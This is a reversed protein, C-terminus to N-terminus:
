TREGVLSLEYQEYVVGSAGFEAKFRYLGDNLQRGNDENSTGFDFWRKESHAAIHLCHDFVLDLASSQYGVESSAIYQTHITRATLFLVVGAVIEDVKRAVVVSINERFREALWQIEQLRHVPSANHKRLLNDELVPWLGALENSGETITLGARASRALARRRRESVPGRNTLEITASLDCRWRRAGLRFLAYLDDQAPTRHYIHPVAKYVLRTYGETAYHRAIEQLADVMLSGRLRGCELIGGYTSGPHSVITGPNDMAIAAPFVGLWRQGDTIVLSRDAFRDGHYNLFGRTHLFTAASAIGCFADWEPEDAPTYPRVIM